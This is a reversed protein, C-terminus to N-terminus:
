GAYRKMYVMMIHPWVSSIPKNQSNCCNCLIAWFPGDHYLFSEPRDPRGLLGLRHDGPGYHLLDLVEKSAATSFRVSFVQERATKRM